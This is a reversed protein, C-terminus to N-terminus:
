LSFSSRRALRPSEAFLALLERKGGNRMRKAIEAVKVSDVSRVGGVIFSSRLIVNLPM